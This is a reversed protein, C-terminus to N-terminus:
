QQMSSTMPAPGNLAITPGCSGIPNPTLITMHADASFGCAGLPVQRVRAQGRERQNLKQDDDTDNSDESSEQQGRNGLGLRSRLSSLTDTIQMLQAQGQLIEDCVIM